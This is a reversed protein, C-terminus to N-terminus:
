QHTGRAHLPVQDPRLVELRLRDRETAARKLLRDDTTVFWRTAAQEAFALHLADLPGFGMASLERARAVAAASASVSTTAADLWLRTALRRDERPNRENEFDHAPSRVLEFTGAKVADLIAAVAEAEKRVRDLTADDFPRKFCCVDLYVTESV